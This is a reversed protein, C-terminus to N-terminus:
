QKVKLISLVVGSEKLRSRTAESTTQLDVSNTMCIFDGVCGQKLAASGCHPSFRKEPLLVQGAAFLCRNGGV